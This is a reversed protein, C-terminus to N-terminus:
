QVRFSWTWEGPDPLGAVTDWTIRVTHVGPTWEAIVSGPGPRWSATGTSPEFAVEAQPISIGDVALEIEYGVVMDVNLDLQRLVIAGDVPSIQEIQAPLRTATGGPALVVAFVVVAALAVGLTLLIVRYRTSSM